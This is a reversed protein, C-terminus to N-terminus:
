EYRYLFFQRGANRGLLLFVNNTADYGLTNGTVGVPADEWEWTKADVQYFGIEAPVGGPGLGGYGATNPHMLVRNKSDFALLTEYEGSPQFWTAPLPIVEVVQRADISWKIIARQYRAIAYIMRGEVDIALQDNGMEWANGVPTIPFVHRLCQGPTGDMPIIQAGCRV